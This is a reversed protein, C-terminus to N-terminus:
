LSVNVGGVPGSGSVCAADPALMAATAGPWVMKKSDVALAAVHFRMGDIHRDVVAEAAGVVDRDGLRAVLRPRAFHAKTRALGLREVHHELLFRAVAESAAGVELVRRGVVLSELFLLRSLQEPLRAGERYLDSM